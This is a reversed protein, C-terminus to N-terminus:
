REHAEERSMPGDTSRLGRAKAEEVMAMFAEGPKREVAQLLFDRVLEDM